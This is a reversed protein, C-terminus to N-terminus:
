TLPGHSCRAENGSTDQQLNQWFCFLSATCPSVVATAMHKVDTQLNYIIKYLMCKEIEAVFAGAVFKADSIQKSLHTLVPTFLALKAGPSGFMLCEFSFCVLVVDFM